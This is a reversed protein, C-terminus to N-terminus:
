IKNLLECLENIKGEELNPYNGIYWSFTHIHEIIPFEDFNVKNIIDALYPQRMQNGGGSLGRRYEIGNKSLELEIKDRLKLNKNKMIIPIAYSSSGKTEFDSFFKENDIYKIYDIFNKTRAIINKDLRKLQSSGLLGNIETPRMNHAAYAFIFEPNLDPYKSIYKKRISDSKSERVLGHSRMMRAYQYIEESNTSIMGGEITTMHHAYYFSFNSMLGYTGVKKDNYTAGHSECVDEILDIEFNKAFNLLEGSIGNLGLVHTLFIAKTKKTIVKELLAANLALNKLSIDVFVPTHGAHIISAIDSVWTLPPVIIECRGYKEKLILMSIDNASAGSNVMISFKTNLWKNWENEFKEVMPGHTLKPDPRNLHLIVEDLDVKEVNNLMLPWKHNM